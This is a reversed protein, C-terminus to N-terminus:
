NEDAAANEKKKLLTTKKCISVVRKELSCQKLALKNQQTLILKEVSLEM